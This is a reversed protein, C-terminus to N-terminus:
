DLELDADLISGINDVHPQGDARGDAPFRFGHRLV